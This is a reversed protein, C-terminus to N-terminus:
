RDEDPDRELGTLRALSHGAAEAVPSLFAGALGAAVGGAPGGAVEGAVPLASAALDILENASNRRAGSLGRMVHRAVHAMEDDTDGNGNAM